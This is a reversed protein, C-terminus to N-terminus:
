RRLKLAIRYMRHLNFYFWFIGKRQFSIYKNKLIENKYKNLFVKARELVEPNFQVCDVYYTNLVGLASNAAKAICHETCTPENVEAFYVREEFASFIGYIQKNNQKFSTSDARLHYFYLPERLYGCPSDSVFFCQYTTALDEYIRGEPFRVGEWLFKKFLKDCPQSGLQDTLILQRIENIDLIRNEDYYYFPTKEDGRIAFRGCIVVDLQKKELYDVMHAYMSLDCSDDSDVFGIYEGTAIDLGRNRAVAQGANRQHLVKVRNDANAYEDCMQGSLDTSGDDILIIELNSYTQNLLSEMCRKLYKEVNYVPVIISIKKTSISM